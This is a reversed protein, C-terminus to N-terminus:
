FAGSVTHIGEDINFLDDIISEQKHSNYSVIVVFHGSKHSITSLLSYWFLATIHCTYSKKFIENILSCKQQQMYINRPINATTDNNALLVMPLYAGNLFVPVRFLCQGAGVVSLNPYMLNEIPLFMDISFRVSM